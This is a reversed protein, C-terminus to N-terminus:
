AAGQPNVEKVLKFTLETQGNALDSLYADMRPLEGSPVAELVLEAGAVPDIHLRHKAWVLVTEVTSNPSFSRQPSEGNFEVTVTISRAARTHIHRKEPLGLELLTLAIDAPAQEDRESDSDEKAHRMEGVYVVEGDRPLADARALVDRLLEGPEAKIVAPSGAGHLFLEISKM